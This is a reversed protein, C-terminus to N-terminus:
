LWPSSYSPRSRLCRTLSHSTLSLFRPFGSTWPISFPLHVWLPVQIGSAPSFGPFFPTMSVLPSNFSPPLPSTALSCISSPRSYFALSKPSLTTSSPTVITLFSCCSLITNFNVFVTSCFTNSPILIFVMLETLVPIVIKLSTPWQAFNYHPLIFDKLTLQNKKKKKM